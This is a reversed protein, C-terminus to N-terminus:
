NLFLSLVPEPPLSAKRIRELAPEILKVLEDFM